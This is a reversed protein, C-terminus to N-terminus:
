GKDIERCAGRPAIVIGYATGAKNTRRIGAAMGRAQLQGSVFDGLMDNDVLGMLAVRRGFKLMALGTNAVVGGLSLNLGEVEVLKGPRFIASQPGAGRAPPFGPTLDVGIYGAVVADYTFKRNPHM